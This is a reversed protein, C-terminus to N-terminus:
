EPASLLFTENEHRVSFGPVHLSGFQLLLYLHVCVKGQKYGKETKVQMESKVQATEELTGSKKKDDPLSKDVIKLIIVKHLTMKGM